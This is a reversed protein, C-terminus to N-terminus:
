VSKFFISAFKVVDVSRLVSNSLKISHYDTTNILIDIERHSYGREPGCLFSYEIDENNNHLFSSLFNGHEYFWYLKKKIQILETISISIQNFQPLVYQKGQECGQIMLREFRIYDKETYEKIHSLDTKVLTIDNIGQQGVMYFIENLYDRDLYPVYASVKKGTKKNEKKEIIKSIISKKNIEIIIATYIFNTDFCIYIDNKQMRLISVIRSYLLDKNDIVFIETNNLNYYFSFIHKIESMM